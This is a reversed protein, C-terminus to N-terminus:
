MKWPQLSINQFLMSANKLQCVPKLWSGGGLASKAHFSSM